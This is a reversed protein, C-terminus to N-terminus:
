SRGHAWTSGSAQQQAGVDSFGSAAGWPAGWGNQTGWMTVGPAVSQASLNGPGHDQLMGGARMAGPGPQLGGYAAGPSSRTTRPRGIPSTNPSASPSAADRPHAGPASGPRMGPPCMDSGASHQVEAEANTVQTQVLAQIRQQRLAENYAILERRQQVGDHVYQGQQRRSDSRRKAWWLSLVAITAAVCIFIASRISTTTRDGQFLEDDTLPAQVAPGTSALSEALVDLGRSAIADALREGSALVGLSLSLSYPITEM